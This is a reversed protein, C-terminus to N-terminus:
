ELVRRQLEVFRPYTEAYNPINREFSPVFPRMQACIIFDATAFPTAYQHTYSVKTLCYIVKSFQAWFECLRLITPWFDAVDSYKAALAEYQEGPLDKATSDVATLVATILVGGFAPVPAFYPIVSHSPDFLDPTLVHILQPDELVLNAVCAEVLTNLDKRLTRLLSAYAGFHFDVLNAPCHKVTPKFPIKILSCARGILHLGERLSAPTLLASSIRRKGDKEMAVQLLRLVRDIRQIEEEKPGPVQAKVGVSTSPTGSTNMGKDNGPEGQTGDEGAKPIVEPILPRPREKLERSVCPVATPIAVPKPEIDLEKGSLLGLKLLELGLLNEMVFEKKGKGELIWGMATAGGVYPEAYDFYELCDLLSFMVRAVTMQQLPHPSKRELSRSGAAHNGGPSCQKQKYSEFIAESIESTVKLSERDQARRDADTPTRTGTAFVFPMSRPASGSTLGSSPGPANGSTATGAAAATKPLAPAPTRSAALLSAEPATFSPPLSRMHLSLCWALNPYQLGNKVLNQVLLALPYDFKLRPELDVQYEKNTHSNTVNTLLILPDQCHRSLYSFTQM